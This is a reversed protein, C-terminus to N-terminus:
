LIKFFLLIFIFLRTNVPTQVQIKKLDLFNLVTLKIAVRPHQPVTISGRSQCLTQTKKFAQSGRGEGQVDFIFPM